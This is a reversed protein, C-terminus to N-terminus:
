GGPLGVSGLWACVREAFAPGGDAVVDHSWEPVLDVEAQPVAALFGPALSTNLALRDAPRGALVLLVPMGSAAVSSWSPRLSGQVMGYRASAVAEPPAVPVVRGDVERLGHRLAEWLGPTWRAEGEAFHAEAAAWGDFSLAPPLYSAFSADRSYGPLDAVDAHGADLLVLARVRDPALGALVCGIAGGWSHGMVVAEDVGLADLALAALSELAYSELPLLPSGGFGPADWAVVRWGHAVFVPAAENLYYGSVPAGLPHLFFLVPADPPGWTHLNLRVVGM